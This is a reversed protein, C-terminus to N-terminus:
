DIGLKRFFVQNRMRSDRLMKEFPLVEIYANYNQNFTFMGEGDATANFNFNRLVKKLSSTIDCVAYLYMRTNENVRILRGRADKANNSKIKDAYSLLQTIPNDAGNYDDRMPRKLEFLIVSDYTSGRNEETSMFVPAQLCMIDPRSENNKGGFPQDSSIYSSYTLREDILWLNHAAYSTDDSSARMPFILEHIYSEKEYHDDDLALGKEFLDLIAKRRIVYDALAAKNAESTRQVQRQYEQIYEESDVNKNDLKRLLAANGEKVSKEFKRKARYLADDITDETAGFKIADIDSKAYELLHRYQPAERKVYSEVRARKTKQAEEWYDHLFAMVERGAALVIEENSIDFILDEGKSPFTFSLRTSDVNEDLYDGTLVGTYTFSHKKKLWSDLGNLVTNNLKKEEVSRNNACLLLKSSSSKLSQSSSLVRMKIHLLSFSKDKIIFTSTESKSELLDSLRCNIDLVTDGDRLVVHPCKESLLYVLCHQMISDAIDEAINPIFPLYEEKVNRLEVKSGTTLEVANYVHDDIGAASDSFVFSRTYFVGDQEFTSVVDVDSFAKLWCFRGVGKGGRSRKHQSDARLFSEFNEEDFGIGNDEVLFGSIHGHSEEDLDLVARRKVSIAVEGRGSPPRDEIAQFSNVIAEYLPVLAQNKPLNFNRIRGLFDVSYQKM